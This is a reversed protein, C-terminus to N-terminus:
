SAKVILPYSGSTFPDDNFSGLLTVTTFGSEILLKQISDSGIALLPVEGTVVNNNVKDLLETDFRIHPLTDYHYLRTFRIKDNEITPLADPREQLIRDYNLIQFLFSGDSSLMNKIRKFFEVIENDTNLHVLTNGFCTVIDFEVSITTSLTKMDGQLYTVNEERESAKVIMEKSYDLAIIESFDSVLSAALAGTSCGIDLFRNNNKCHRVIFDRQAQKLPFIYDYLEVFQDYMM